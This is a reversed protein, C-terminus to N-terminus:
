LTDKPSYRWTTTTGVIALGAKQLNAQSQSGLGAWSYIQRCGAESARRIRAALLAVHCGMERFEPLAAGACLLASDGCRMWMAIGAIMEGHWAMLFDLEPRDFLHRMNRLAGPIRDQQAEFARLYARLYQEQQSPRPPRINFPTPRDTAMLRCDPHCLWAYRNAPAWGPRSITFSGPAVLECGFLGRRYFEEIEPLRGLFSHDACYVRNFYGVDDFRLAVASGIPAVRARDGLNERDCYTEVRMADYHAVLQLASAAEEALSVSENPERIVPSIM